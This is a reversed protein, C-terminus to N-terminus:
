DKPHCVRNRGTEKAQYLFIDTQQLLKEPTDEPGPICNFAGLSVTVYESTLSSQHPIELREVAQRIDNAVKLTGAMDTEPLLLVFEEGGYRAVLDAPRKAQERINKAIEILCEDGQLHGYSDNYLKFHDIDLMILGLPTKNRIARKSEILIKEDFHRRNVMGTMGDMQSLHLLEINQKELEVQAKQLAAFIEDRQMRHMYAKSHYRLRAILEVKDPLKILYDNAGQEFADKKTIPNEETSLMIVPILATKKNGRLQKLLDIGNIQPMFLDLLVTTPRISEIEKLATASDPCYHFNLDDCDMLMKQILKAVIAQDDVLIVIKDAAHLTPNFKDM